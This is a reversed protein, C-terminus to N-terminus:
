EWCDAGALRKRNTAPDIRGRGGASAALWVDLVEWDTKKDDDAM